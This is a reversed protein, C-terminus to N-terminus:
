RAMIERLDSRIDEIANAATPRRGAPDTGGLAEIIKLAECIAFNIGRDFEDECYGGLANIREWAEDLPTIM